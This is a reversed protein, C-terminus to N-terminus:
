KLLRFGIRCYICKKNECYERKLQILAQSDGANECVIGMRSFLTIIFNSEPPLSELLRIAQESYRSDNNKKGYAYLIPVVTNILIIRISSLSLKRERKKCAQGFQSHIQWYESVEDQFLLIYEDAGHASIINSFLHQTKRILNALQVIKIHPFNNPRVRLNRFLHNDLPQLNYKNRLFDYEKQLRFYYDDEILESEFLGAQGLFLAEVQIISDSHKAIIRLPLSLALREFSDNNIGFGFNRSLTVYFVENWDNNYRELLQFIARVKRELRETLLASIWDFLYVSNIEQIREVCPIERDNSLLYQYNEKMKESVEIKWQPISRGTSDFIEPVDIIEAVHLVVSNYSQNKDHKHKYWDSSRTHLEINGAWIKDKIRVKANFFDPGADTNHLGHDIIECETNEDILFNNPNYLKYKWAYHLLSEM